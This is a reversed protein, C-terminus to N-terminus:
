KFKGGGYSEPVLTTSFNFKAQPLVWRARKEGIKLASRKSCRYPDSNNENIGLLVVHCYWCRDWIHVVKNSWSPPARKVKAISEEREHLILALIVYERQAGRRTQWVLTCHPNWKEENNLVVTNICGVSFKRNVQQDDGNIRLVM